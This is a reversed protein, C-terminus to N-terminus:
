AEGLMDQFTRPFRPVAQRDMRQYANREFANAHERFEVFVLWDDGPVLQKNGEFANIVKRNNPIIVAFKRLEWLNAADTVPDAKAILSDPGIRTHIFRNEGMLRAAYGYLEGRTTFTPAALMADVRSEHASKWERLRAEPYNSPYKDVLRHHTPCLLILNDYANSGDGDDGRPGSSRRAIMHAMEGIIAVGEDAELLVVCDQGCGPYACRGASRAWLRKVDPTSIPM